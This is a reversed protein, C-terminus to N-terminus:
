GANGDLGENLNVMADTAVTECRAENGRSFQLLMQSVDRRLESGLTNLNKMEQMMANISAQVVKGLVDIQNQILSSSPANVSQMVLILDQLGLHVGDRQGLLHYETPQGLCIVQEMAKQIANEVTQDRLYNLFPEHQHEELSSKPQNEQLTDEKREQSSKGQGYLRTTLDNSPCYVNSTSNTSQAPQGDFSNEDGDESDEEDDESDEESDEESTEEHGEDNSDEEEDSSDKMKNITKKPTKNDNEEEFSIDRLPLFEKVTGKKRDAKVGSKVNLTKGEVVEKGKGSNVWKGDVFKYHMLSMSLEGIVDKLNKEVKVYESKPLSKLSVDDFLKLNRLSRQTKGGCMLKVAAKHDFTPVKSLQADVYCKVKGKPIDLLKRILPKSLVVNIGEVITHLVSTDRESETYM